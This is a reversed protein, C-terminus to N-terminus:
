SRTPPLLFSFIIVEWGKLPTETHGNEHEVLKKADACSEDSCSSDVFIVADSVSEAAEKLKQATAAAKAAVVQLLM